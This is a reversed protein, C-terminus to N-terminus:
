ARMEILIKFGDFLIRVNLNHIELSANEIRKGGM